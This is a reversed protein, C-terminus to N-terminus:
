GACFARADSQSAVIDWAARYGLGVNFSSLRAEAVLLLAVVYGLAHKAIVAHVAIIRWVKLVTLSAVSFDTDFDYVFLTLKHGICVASASAVLSNQRTPLKSASWVSEM